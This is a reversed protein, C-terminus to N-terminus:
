DNAWDSRPLEGGVMPGRDQWRAINTPDILAEYVECPSANFTVGHTISSTEM